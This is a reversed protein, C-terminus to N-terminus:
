LVYNGDGKNINNKFYYINDYNKYNNCILEGTGDISNDDVILIEINSYNQKLVSDIAEMLYSKRNYTPIIVSILDVGYTLEKDECEINNM